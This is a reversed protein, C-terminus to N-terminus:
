LMALYCEGRRRFNRYSAELDFGERQKELSGKM